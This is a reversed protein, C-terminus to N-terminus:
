TITDNTKTKSNLKQEDKRQRANKLLAESIKRKTEDSHPIGKNHTPRGKLAKSINQRHEASLKKGIAASSMKAKAAISRKKGLNAESIKHKTKDSVPSRIRNKATISRRRRTEASENRKAVAMKKRTTESPNSVGDGGNTRNHLIGTGLDKRGYESILEIEYSFADSETINERLFIINSRDSPVPSNHPVYARNANGKGIYYPTGAPATLSEKSRLYAYVYYNNSMYSNINTNLYNVRPAAKPLLTM